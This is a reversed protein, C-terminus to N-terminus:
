NLSRMLNPFHGLKAIYKEQAKNYQVPSPYAQM